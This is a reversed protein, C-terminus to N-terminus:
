AVAHTESPGAVTIVAIGSLFRTSRVSRADFDFPKADDTSSSSLVRVKVRSVISRIRRACM